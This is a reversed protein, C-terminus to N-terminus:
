PMPSGDGNFEMDMDMTDHAPGLTRARTAPRENDSADSSLSIVDDDPVPRKQSSRAPVVPFSTPLVVPNNAPRVPVLSPSRLKAVIFALRDEADLEELDPFGQPVRAPTAAIVSRAERRRTGATSASASASAGVNAGVSASARASSQLPVPFLTGRAAQVPREAESEESSTDRPLAWERTGAARRGSTKRRKAAPERVTRQVGRSASSAKARGRRAPGAGAPVGLIRDFEDITGGAPAAPERRLGNTLQPRRPPPSPSPSLRRGSRRCISSQTRDTSQWDSSMSRLTHSARRSTTERARISWSATRTTRTPWVFVFGGDLALPFTSAALPDVNERSPTASARPNCSRAYEDLADAPPARARGKGKRATASASPQSNSPGAEAHQSQTAVRRKSPSKQKVKDEYAAVIEPHVQRMISAPIWLLTNAKPDKSKTGGGDEEDEDEDADSDRGAAIGTPDPHKGRIGSNAIEVFFASAIREMADDQTTRTTRTQRRLCRRVLAAPTGVGEEPLPGLPTTLRIAGPHAGLELFQEEHRKDAEVAAAKLVTMVLGPTLVNKFRKLIQTRAGWEDFHNECFAALGALDIARKDRPAGGGTHGTTARSLFGRSNTRLEAIVTARWQATFTAWNPYPRAHYADLLQDGFGARALAHATVTNVGKLGDDYDNRSMLAILLLGGRTLQVDPHTKLENATFVHAHHVSPKGKKDKAPHSKNGTLNLSLNKIVTRAGFVFTDADDSIIADIFGRVNLFALEAEAEGRAERWDMGFLEILEKVGRALHHAGSKGMRSGRKTKPRERGDFMFLLSVPLWGCSRTPGRDPKEGTRKDKFGGSFTAHQLWISADIGLRLTRKGSANRDFGDVVALDAIARSQGAKNLIDWLGPIGM